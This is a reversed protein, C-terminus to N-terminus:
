YNTIPISKLINDIYNEIVHQNHFYNHKFHIYSFCYPHISLAWLDYYKLSTFLVIKLCISM